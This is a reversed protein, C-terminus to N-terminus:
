CNNAGGLYEVISSTSLLGNEIKCIDTSNDMAAQLNHEVSIVTINSERLKKLISYIEKQSKNDIGTSPEDLIILEPKGLLARAILVKQLEGGSLNKLLKDKLTLIELAELISSIANKDKIKLTKLHCNLLEYVTIPFQYNIKEGHQPVYGIKNTDLSISGISPTLLKIILKILTTKASGNGGIISFYSGKYIHLNIDKLIYPANGTYSFCMNKINIM